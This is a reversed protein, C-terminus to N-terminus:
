EREPQARGRVGLFCMSGFPNRRVPRNHQPTKLANPQESGTDLVAFKSRGCIHWMHGESCQLSMVNDHAHCICLVVRRSARSPTSAGALGTSRCYGVNGM